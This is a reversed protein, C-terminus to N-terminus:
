KSNPPFQALIKAVFENIQKEKQSRNETLYGVGEGEWVLEKKKADILDIYLTGETSSSVYNRGGWMYPNWGYGWGYGWGANFQNVELKEREKTFINVLLDPTNSKTMGMKGLENDIAHLIRKKDFESIQVKDIGSKHFAYTKYQTFDVNKDYDANVRISSCASLIFLFLVPLLKIAKM